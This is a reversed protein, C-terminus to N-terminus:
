PASGEFHELQERLLRVVDERDANSMYNCRGQQDRFPFVLLVFGNRREARLNLFSDIYQALATMRAQYIPEVPGDGLKSDSVM